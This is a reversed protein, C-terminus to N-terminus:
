IRCVALQISGVEERQIKGTLNYLNIKGKLSSGKEQLIVGFCVKGFPVAFKCM